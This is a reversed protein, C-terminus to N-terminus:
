GAVRRGSPYVNFASGRVFGLLTIGAEEVDPRSSAGQPSVHLVRVPRVLNATMMSYPQTHAM